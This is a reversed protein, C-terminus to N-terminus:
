KLYKDRTINMQKLFKHNLIPSGIRVVITSVGYLPPSNHKCRHPTIVVDLM